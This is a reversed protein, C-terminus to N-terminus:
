FFRKVLGLLWVFFGMLIIFTTFDFLVNKFTEAVGGIETEQEWFEFSVDAEQGLIKIPIPKEDDFSVSIESFFTKLSEVYNFPFRDKFLGITLYLDNIKEQTPMFVGLVDNKIECLYFEVGSLLECDDLEPVEWDQGIPITPETMYCSEGIGRDVWECFGIKDDECTFQTECWQCDYFVGCLEPYSTPEVCFYEQLFISYVWDCGDAICTGYTECLGCNGLGCVPPLSINDLCREYDGSLSYIQVEDIGSWVRDLYAGKWSSYQTMEGDYYVVRWLQSVWIWEVKIEIWGEFYPFTDIVAWGENTWASLVYFDGNDWDAGLSVQFMDLGGDRLWINMGEFAGIYPDPRHLNVYYIFDGTPTDDGSKVDGCQHGICCIAKSGEYTIDGQVQFDDDYGFDIWGGQNDLDGDTYSNFDDLFIVAGFVDDSFLLLGTLCLGILFCWGLAKFETRVSNKTMCTDKGM